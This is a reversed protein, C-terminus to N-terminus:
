RRFAAKENRVAGLGAGDAVPKGNLEVFWLNGNEAESASVSEQARATGISLSLALASSALTLGFARGVSRNSKMNEGRSQKYSIGSRLPRSVAQLVAVAREDTRARQM